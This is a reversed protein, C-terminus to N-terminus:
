PSIWIIVLSALSVRAMQASIPSFFRSSSSLYRLSVRALWPVLLGLQLLGPPLDPLRLGLVNAAMHLVNFSAIGGGHGDAYEQVGFVRDRLDESQLRGAVITM